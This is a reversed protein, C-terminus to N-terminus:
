ELVRSLWRVVNLAFQKDDSGPHNMGMTFPAGYQDVAGAALQASMMAAEGLMVVRGRGFTMAIGQARGAASVGRLSALDERTPSEGATPSLRLLATAGPPSSMSQGTFSVVTRIRESSDRGNMIAHAGLREKDFVLMTPGRGALVHATDHVFGKGFNVGFRGALLETASGFPAHDAILLLAGGARVWDRVADCEADTFASASTAGAAGIGPAAPNSIVLVGVSDLAVKTLTVASPAVRYGDNRMLAAFPAYRGTATHFNNHAEDIVLLPHRATHAPRKVSMDFSTDARQQAGACATLAASVVMAAVSAVGCRTIM